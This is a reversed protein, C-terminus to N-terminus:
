TYVTTGVCRPHYQSLLYYKLVISSAQITDGFHESLEERLFRRIKTDFNRYLRNGKMEAEIIKSTTWKTSSGCSWHQDPDNTENEKDPWGDTEGFIQQISLKGETDEKESDESGDDDPIKKDRQRAQNSETVRMRILVVAEQNEDIRALQPSIKFKQLYLYRFSVQSDEDKGNTQAYAEKVEQHFGEGLRTTHHNTTGKERLDDIIHASAHQKPFDFNKGYKEAVKQYSILQLGRNSLVLHCVTCFHEYKKIYGKLRM